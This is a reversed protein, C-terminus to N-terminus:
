YRKANIYIELKESLGSIQCTKGSSKEPLTSVCSNGITLISESISM